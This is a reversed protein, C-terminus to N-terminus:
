PDISAALLAAEGPLRSRGASRALKSVHRAERYRGVREYVNVIANLAADSSMTTQLTEFFIKKADRLRGHRGYARILAAALGGDLFGARRAEEYLAKAERLRSRRGLGDVVITYSRADVM